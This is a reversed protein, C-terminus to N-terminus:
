RGFPLLVPPPKHRWACLAYVAAGAALSLGAPVEYSAALAAPLSSLPAVLMWAQLGVRDRLRRQAHQVWWVLPLVCAASAAVFSLTRPEGFAALGLVALTLLAWQLLYQRRWRQELGASLEAGQPLGPMLVLLAQDRRRSWLMSLHTHLSGALMSFAGISLGFRAHHIVLSGDISPRVVSLVAVATGLALAILALVWLQIAWLGGIGMGLELRALPHSAPPQSLLGRRWWQQPWVFLGKLRLQWEPMMAVPMPRGEKMAQWGAQGRLRRAQSAHHWRGGRGISAALLLACGLAAALQLPVPAAALGDILGRVPGLAWVGSFGLWALIWLWPERQVAVVMLLVLMAAWFGRWGLGLWAHLLLAALAALVFVLLVLLEQMARVQGPLLRALTPTNQTWLGDCALWALAALVLLGNAALAAGTGQGMALAIGTTPAMLLVVFGLAYRWAGPQTHAQWSLRVIARHAPTNV